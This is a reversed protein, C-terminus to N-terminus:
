PVASGAALIQRLATDANEVRRRAAHDRLPLVDPIEATLGDVLSSWQAELEPLVLTLERARASDGARHAALLMNIQDGAAMEPGLRQFLMEYGEAARAWDRLDFAAVARLRLFDDTPSIMRTSLVEAPRKVGSYLKARLLNHQDRLVADHTAVAIELLGEADAFQGGQLLAAAHKLRLRDRTHLYEAIATSDPEPDNMLAEANAAAQARIVEFEKAALGTAGSAVLYDAFPEAFEKTIDLFMFDRSIARHALILDALPMQGSLGNAYLEVILADARATADEAAATGIFRRTIDALVALAALPNEDALELAALRQLTELGLAGDRWLARSQALMVRADEHSLTGTKQGLDILALRSRQAWDDSGATAAVHNDFAALLDGGLEAARGLLYRYGSSQQIEARGQLTTALHRAVDWAATEIAAEFLTLVTADFLAPPYTELDTAADALLSHAQPLRGQAVHHLAEFLPEDQWDQPLLSVPDSFATIALDLRRHRVQQRVSLLQADSAVVGGADHLARLFSRAEPLLRQSLHLAALDLLIDAIQSSMSQRDNQGGQAVALVDTLRARDELFQRPRFQQLEAALSPEEREEQQVQGAVTVPLVTDAHDRIGEHPSAFAMGPLLALLVVMRFGGRKAAGAELIRVACLTTGPRCFGLLCARM